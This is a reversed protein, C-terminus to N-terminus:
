AFRDAWCNREMWLHCHLRLKREQPLLFLDMGQLDEKLLMLYLGPQFQILIKLFCIELIPQDQKGNSILCMFSITHRGLVLALLVLPLRNKSVSQLNLGSLEAQYKQLNFKEIAAQAEDGSSM